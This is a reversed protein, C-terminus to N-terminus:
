HSSPTDIEPGKESTQLYTHFKRVVLLLSEAMEKWNGM